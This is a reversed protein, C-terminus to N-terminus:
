QEKIFTKKNVLLLDDLYSPYNEQSIFFKEECKKALRM